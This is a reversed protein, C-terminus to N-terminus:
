CLMVGLQALTKANQRVLNGMGMHASGLELRVATLGPRLEVFGYPVVLALSETQSGWPTFTPGVSVRVPPVVAIGVSNAPSGVVFITAVEQVYGLTIADCALLTEINAAQQVLATARVAGVLCETNVAMDSEPVRVVGVESTQIVSVVGSEVNNNQIQTELLSSQRYGFPLCVM